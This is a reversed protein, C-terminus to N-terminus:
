LYKMDPVSLPRFRFEESSLRFCNQSHMCKYKHCLNGTLQSWSWFIYQKQPTTMWQVLIGFYTIGASRKKYCLGVANVTRKTKLLTKCDSALAMLRYFKKCQQLPTLSCKCKSKRGINRTQLIVRVFMYFRRFM